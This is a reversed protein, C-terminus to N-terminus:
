QKIIRQTSCGQNTIIKLLYCGQPYSELDIKTEKANIKIDKLKIGQLNYIEINNILLNCDIEVFDKVPNPSVSVHTKNDINEIYSNAISMARDVSDVAYEPIVFVALDTTHPVNERSAFINSYLSVAIPLYGAHYEQINYYNFFEVATQWGPKNNNYVYIQKQYNPNRNDHLYELREKYRNVSGSLSTPRLWTIYSLPVEYEALGFYHANATVHEEAYKYAIIYDGQVTVASDFIIDYFGDNNAEVGNTITDNLVKEYIVEFGPYNMDLIQITDGTSVRTEFRLTGVYYLFLLYSIGGIQFTTDSHMTQGFGRPTMDLSINQGPVNREIEAFAHNYYITDFVFPDEGNRDRNINFPYGLGLEVFWILSDMPVGATDILATPIYSKYYKLTDAGLNIQYKNINQTFASIIFFSFCIISLGKKM